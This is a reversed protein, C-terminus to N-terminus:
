MIIARNRVDEGALSVLTFDPAATGPRLGSCGAGCALAALSCFLFRTHATKMIADGKLAITGTRVPALLKETPHVVPPKTDTQRRMTGYPCEVIAWRNIAPDWTWPWSDTGYPRSLREVESVHAQKVETTGVPSM